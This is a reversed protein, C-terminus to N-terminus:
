VCVCVCEKACVPSELVVFHNHWFLTPSQQKNEEWEYLNRRDLREIIQQLRLTLTTKFAEFIAKRRKRIQIAERIGNLALISKKSIHEALGYFCFQILKPDNVKSHWISCRYVGNSFFSHHFWYKRDCHIKFKNELSKRRALRWCLIWVIDSIQIEGRNRETCISKKSELHFFKAKFKDSDLKSSKWQFIVDDSRMSNYEMDFWWQNHSSWCFKFRDFIFNKNRFSSRYSFNTIRICMSSSIHSFHM